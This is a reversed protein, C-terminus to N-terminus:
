EAGKSPLVGSIVAERGTPEIWYSITGPISRMTMFRMTFSWAYAGADEVTDWEYAGQYLGTPDVMWLKSRFGPFGVFFPIPLWSFLINQRVTMGAVRFRVVLTAGPCRPRTGGAKM